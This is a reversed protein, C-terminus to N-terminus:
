SPEGELETFSWELLNAMPFCHAKDGCLLTLVGTEGAERALHKAIGTGAKIHYTQIVGNVFTVEVESWRTPYTQQQDGTTASPPHSSM